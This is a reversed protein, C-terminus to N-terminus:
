SPDHGKIRRCQPVDHLRERFGHIMEPDAGLAELAGLMEHCLVHLEGNRSAWLAVMDRDTM